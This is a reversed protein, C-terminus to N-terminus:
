ESSAPSSTALEGFAKAVATEVNAAKIRETAAATTARVLEAAKAIAEAQDTRRLSRFFDALEAWFAEYAAQMADGGLADAFQEDSIGAAVAQPKLIAFIVTAVLPIDTSLRSVLPPSGETLECINLGAADRVRKIASVTISLTWERGTNDKFAKM